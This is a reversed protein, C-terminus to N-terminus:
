VLESPYNMDSTDKAPHDDADSWTYSVNTNYLDLYIFAFDGGTMGMQSAKEM